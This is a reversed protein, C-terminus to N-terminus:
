AAGPAGAPGTAAQGITSDAVAGPAASGAPAPAAPAHGPGAHSQEEEWRAVHAKIDAGIKELDAAAKQAILLTGELTRVVAMLRAHLVPIDKLYEKAKELPTAAASGPFSRKVTM